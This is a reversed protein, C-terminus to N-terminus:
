DDEFEEIEKWKDVSAYPAFVIGDEGFLTSWDGFDTGNWYAVHYKENGCQTIIYKRGTEVPLDKPNKRLDHWKYKDQKDILEQLTDTAEWEPGIISIIFDLAEQFKNEM